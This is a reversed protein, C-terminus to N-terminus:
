KKLVDQLQQFFGSGSSSSGSGGRGPVFQMMQRTTESTIRTILEDINSYAYWAGLVLLVIPILSIIGRVFGGWTRMRDRRDLNKLHLSIEDIKELLIEEHTKPETANLVDTTTKKTPM